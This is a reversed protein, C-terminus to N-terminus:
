DHTHGEALCCYSLSQGLRDAICNAISLPVDRFLDWVKGTAEQAPDGFILPELGSCLGLARQLVRPLWATRPVAFLHNIRDYYLVSFESSQLVAYRGWDPDTEAFHKGKWLRYRFTNTVPSIYRVLRLPREPDRDSRFQCHEPNFERSPWNLDPGESWSLSSLYLNIDGAFQALAWSPPEPQLPIQASASFAQLSDIDVADLSIRSPLLNSTTSSSVTVRLEPFQAGVKSLHDITRPSRAGILIASCGEMPIRIIAAPCVFISGASRGFHVDCYSFSDFLRRIRNRAVTGNAGAQVRDQLTEGIIRKFTPWTLTRQASLAYLLHDSSNNM